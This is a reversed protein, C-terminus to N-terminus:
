ILKLPKNCIKIVTQLDIRTVVEDSIGRAAVAAAAPVITTHHHPGKCILSPSLM